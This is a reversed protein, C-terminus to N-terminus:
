VAGIEQGIPTSCTGDENGAEGLVQLDELINGVEDVIVVLRDGPTVRQWAMRVAERQDPALSSPVDPPLFTALLRM